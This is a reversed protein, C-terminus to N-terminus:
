PMLFNTVMVTVREAWGENRSTKLLESADIQIFPQSFFLHEREKYLDGCRPQEEPIRRNFHSLASHICWDDDFWHSAVQLPFKDAITGWQIVFSRGTSPLKNTVRKWEILVAQVFHVINALQIKTIDGSILVVKRKETIKDSNKSCFMHLMAAKEINKTTGVIQLNSINQPHRKM